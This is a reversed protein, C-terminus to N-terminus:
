EPVSHNFYVLCTIKETYIYMTCLDDVKQVEYRRQVTTAFVYQHLFFTGLMEGGNIQTFSDNPADCIM